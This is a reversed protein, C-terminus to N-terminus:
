RNGFYNSHGRYVRRIAPGPGFGDSNKVAKEYAISELWEAKDAEYEADTMNRYREAMRVAGAHAVHDPTTTDAINQWYAADELRSKM